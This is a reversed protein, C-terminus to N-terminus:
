PKKTNSKNREALSNILGDLGGNNIEKTFQSKYNEILWIGLV